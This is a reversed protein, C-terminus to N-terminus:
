KSICFMAQCAENRYKVLKLLINNIKIAHWEEDLHLEVFNFNFFM